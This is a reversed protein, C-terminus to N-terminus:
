DNQPQSGPYGARHRLGAKPNRELWMYGTSTIACEGAKMVRGSPAVERGRVIVFGLQILEATSTRQSNPSLNAYNPENDCRALARLRDAEKTTLAPLRQDTM